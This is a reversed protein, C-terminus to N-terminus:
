SQKIGAAAPPLGSIEPIRVLDTMLTKAYGPVGTDRLTAILRHHKKKNVVIGIYVVIIHLIITADGPV